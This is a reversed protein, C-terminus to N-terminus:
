DQKWAFNKLHLYSSVYAFSQFNEKIKTTSESNNNPKTEYKTELGYFINNTKCLLTKTSFSAAYYHTVICFRKLSGM